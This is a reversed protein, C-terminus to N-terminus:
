ESVQKVIDTDDGKTIRNALFRDLEDQPIRFNRRTLKISGIRKENIWRRVTNPHVSLLDAVEDTKWLKGM